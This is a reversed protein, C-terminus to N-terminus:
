TTYIANQAELSILADDLIFEKNKRELFRKFIKEVGEKGMYNRGARWDEDMNVLLTGVLRYVSSRDPFVGVVRTRRRIERNLRELPNVSHISRHHTEPFTKYVLIDEKAELLMEAAKPWRNQMRAAIEELYRLANQHDPQEFILKLADAIQKKDKHAIQALVNRMFHVTCRQWAAGSLAQTLASVLGSHADSTVLKAEELGRRKISRLFDLWFAESEGAGLEFGVIHREGQRDVGIAIAMSLSVVRHNERVKLAIADLWIYPYCAQLPRERFQQVMENLEKCIRSVKSKDIGPLGLAKFLKEMKRTAIGQVYAEQVVTLLADEIMNRRELISPFYTGKRLKPIELEIEGVRTELTRKRTGNRQNTRTESREYKKAGIVEEAELEIAQQALYEAAKKCFELNEHLGSKRLGDILTMINDTM